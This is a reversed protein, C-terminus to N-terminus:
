RAGANYNLAARDSVSQGKVRPLFCNRIGFSSTKKPASYSPCPGYAFYIWRANLIGGGSSNLVPKCLKPNSTEQLLLSPRTSSAWTCEHSLLLQFGTVTHHTSLSHADLTRWKPSTVGHLKNLTHRCDYLIYYLLTVLSICCKSLLRYKV